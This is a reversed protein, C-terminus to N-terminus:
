GGNSRKVIKKAYTESNAGAVLLIIPPCPATAADHDFSMTKFEIIWIHYFFIKNKNQYHNVYLLYSANSGSTQIHKVIETNKLIWYKLLTNTM